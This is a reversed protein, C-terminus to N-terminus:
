RRGLRGGGGDDGGRRMGGVGAPRRQNRAPAVITATTQNRVAGDPDIQVGVFPGEPPAQPTEGENELRRTKAREDGAWDRFARKKGLITMCMDFADLADDHASKPFEMMEKYLHRFRPHVKRREVGQVPETWDTENYGQDGPLVFPLWVTGTELDWARRRLRRIKSDEGRAQTLGKVPVRRLGHRRAQRAIVTQKLAQQYAQEEIACGVVGPFTAFQGMITAVQRAFSLRDHVLNLCVVDQSEVALGLTIMAFYDATTEQSIAPDVAQYIDLRQWVPEGTLPDTMGPRHFLWDGTERDMRLNDQRRFWQVYEPHYDRSEPDHPDNMWETNFQALPMSNRIRRLTILPFQEPWLPVAEPDLVDRGQVICRWVQQVYSGSKDPALLRSLLSDFHLITGCFFFHGTEPDLMPIVARNLKIELKDRQTLSDIHTDNEVDDCIVLDPRYAGARLGRLRASIARGAIRVEHVLTREGLADMETHAIAFDEGTWRLGLHGGSLDGFDERLRANEEIQRKIDACFSRVQVDSDSLILIFRKIRFVACYLPILFTLISSKGHGRPAAAVVGQRTQRRGQPDTVFPRRGTLPDIPQEDDELFWQEDPIDFVLDVLERHFSSFDNRFVRPFYTKGFVLIDAAAAEIRARQAKIRANEKQRFILEQRWSERLPSDMLEDWTDVGPPFPPLGLPEPLPPLIPQPLLRM